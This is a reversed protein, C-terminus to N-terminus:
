RMPKLTDIATVLQAAVLSQDCQDLLQLAEEMKELAALLTPSPVELDPTM